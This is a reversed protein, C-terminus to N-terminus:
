SVLGLFYCEGCARPNFSWERCGCVLRRLLMGRMRPSQFIISRKAEDWERQLMGRMRPSQFICFKATVMDSDFYCEGCSRPNFSACSSRAQWGRRTVNGAHAPISLDRGTPLHSDRRLVGRTHPSQFFGSCSPKRLPRLYCEGRARPNFAGHRHASVDLRSFLEECLRPNFSDRRPRACIRLRLMGRM